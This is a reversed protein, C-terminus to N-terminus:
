ALRRGPPPRVAHGDRSFELGYLGSVLVDPPLRGALFDVPRGSLVAVLAFRDALRSCSTPRM